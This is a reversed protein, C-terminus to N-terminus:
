TYQIRISRQQRPIMRQGHDVDVVLEASTLKKLSWVVSSYVIYRHAYSQRYVIIEPIIPPVTYVNVPYRSSDLNSVGDTLRRENLIDYFLFFIGTNLQSYKDDSYHNKKQYTHLVVSHLFFCYRIIISPLRIQETYFINYLLINVYGHVQIQAQVFCLSSHSYPEHHGKFSRFM